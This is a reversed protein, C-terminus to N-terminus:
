GALPVSAGPSYFTISEPQCRHGLRRAVDIIKEGYSTEAFGCEGCAQCQWKKRATRTQVEAFHRSAWFSDRGCFNVPTSESPEGGATNPRTSNM